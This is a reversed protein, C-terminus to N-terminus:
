TSERELLQKPDKEPRKWKNLRQSDWFVYGWSWLDQKGHNVFGLDSTKWWPAGRPGENRNVQHDYVRPHAACIRGPGRCEGVLAKSLFLDGDGLTSMYSSPKVKWQKRKLYECM